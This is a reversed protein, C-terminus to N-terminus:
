WSDSEGKRDQAARWANYERQSMTSPDRRTASGAGPISAMVRPAAAPAAPRAPTFAPVVPAAPAAPQAPAAKRQEAAYSLRHLNRLGNRPDMISRLAAPDRALMDIVEPGHPDAALEAVIDPHVFQRNQPDFLVAAVYQEKERIEPDVKAAEELRREYSGLLEAQARQQQEAELRAAVAREAERQAKEATAKSWDRMYAEVDTEGAENRYSAIDLKELDLIKEAKKQQEQFAQVQEAYYRAQQETERLRRTQEAFRDYPITEPQKAKWAPVEEPAAAPQEPQEPAAAPQEGSVGSAEPSDDWSNDPAAPAPAENIEIEDM